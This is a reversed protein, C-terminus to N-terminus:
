PLLYLIPWFHCLTKYALLMM